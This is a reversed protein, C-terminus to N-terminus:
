KLYTLKGTMVRQNHILRYFYNGGSYKSMNLNYSYSGPLKEERILVELLTGTIDYLELRVMGASEISYEITTEPNFPNPYNQGLEFSFDETDDVSLFQCYNLMSTSANITNWPIAASGSTTSSLVIVSIKSILNTRDEALISNYQNACGAAGQSDAKLLIARSTQSVDNYGCAYFGGDPTAIIDMLVDSGPMKYQMSKIFSGTKTIKFAFMDREGQAAFGETSGTITFEDSSSQVISNAYDTNFGGYVKYFQLNGDDSIAFVGIKPVDTMFSEGILAFTNDTTLIVSRFTAWSQLEYVNAWIVNGMPDIKILIPDTNFNISHSGALVFNNDPTPAIGYLVDYRLSTYLKSWIVQGDSSLRVAYAFPSLVDKAYGAAMVGGDPMAYVSYCESIAKPTFRKSWLINGSTDLKTVAFDWYSANSAYGGVYIENSPSLAISRLGNQGSIGFNRSWIIAGDSTTKTVLSFYSLGLPESYAGALYLDSNDDIAMSNYKINPHVSTANIFNSQAHLPTNNLCVSLFLVSLVKSIKSTLM